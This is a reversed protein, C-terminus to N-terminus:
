INESISSPNIEQTRSRRHLLRFVLTTIRSLFQRIITVFFALAGISPQKSIRWMSRVMKWRERNSMRLKIGRAAIIAYAGGELFSSRIDKLLCEVLSQPVEHQSIADAVFFPLEARQMLDALLLTDEGRVAAPDFLGKDSPVNSRRIAFGTTNLYRM